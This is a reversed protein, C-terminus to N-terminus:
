VQAPPKKSAEKKQMSSANSAKQKKPDRNGSRNEQRKKAQKPRSDSNFALSDIESTIVFEEDESEQSSMLKRSHSYTKM